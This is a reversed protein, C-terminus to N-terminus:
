LSPDDAHLNPFQISHHTALEIGCQVGKPKEELLGILAKRTKKYDLHGHDLPIKALKELPTVLDELSVHPKPIIFPFRFGIPPPSSVMLKNLADIKEIMSPKTKAIILLNETYNRVTRDTCTRLASELSQIM